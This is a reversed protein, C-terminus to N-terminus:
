TRGEAIDRVQPFPIMTAPPVESLGRTVTFVVVGQLAINAYGDDQGYYTGGARVRSYASFRDSNKFSYAILHGSAAWLFVTMEVLFLRKCESGEM